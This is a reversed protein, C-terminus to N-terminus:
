IKVKGFEISVEFLNLFGYTLHTVLDSHVQLFFFDDLFYDGRWNDDSGVVNDGWLDSVNQWALALEKDLADEVVLGTLHALLGFFDVVWEPIIKQIFNQIIKHPESNYKQYRQRDTINVYILMFTAHILLNFYKKLNHGFFSPRPGPHPGLGLGLILFM